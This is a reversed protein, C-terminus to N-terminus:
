RQSGVILVGEQQQGPERSQGLWTCASSSVGSSLNVSLIPEVKSCVCSQLFVSGFCTGLASSVTETLIPATCAQVFKPSISFATVSILWSSLDQPTIVVMILKCLASHLVTGPKTWAQWLLM